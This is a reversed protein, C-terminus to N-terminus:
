GSGTILLISSVTPLAALKGALLLSRRLHGLGFTDHSYLVLRRGRHASGVTLAGLVVGSGGWHGAPEALVEGCEPAALGVVFMAGAVLHDRM